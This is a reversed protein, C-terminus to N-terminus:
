DVIAGGRSRVVLGMAHSLCLEQSHMACTTGGGQTVRGEAIIEGMKKAASATDSISRFADKNTAGVRFFLFLLHILLINIQEEFHTLWNM